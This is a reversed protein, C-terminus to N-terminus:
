TTTHESIDAVVGRMGVVVNGRIIRDGYIIVPFTTGDKRLARYGDGVVNEGHIVREMDRLARDRDDPHIMQSVHLGAEFDERTYGFATFAFRNAFTIRGSTDVEYVTQPLLETLERYRKESQRLAEEAIKQETVDEYIAM